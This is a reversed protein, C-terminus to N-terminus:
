LITTNANRSFCPSRRLPVIHLLHLSTRCSFHNSLHRIMEPACPMVGPLTTSRFASNAVQNRSPRTRRPGVKMLIPWCNLVRTSTSLGSNMLSSSFSCTCCKSARQVSVYTTCIGKDCHLQLGQLRAHPPFRLCWKPKQLTYQPRIGVQM